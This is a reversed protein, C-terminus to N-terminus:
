GMQREVAIVGSIKEVEKMVAHLENVHAVTVDLHILAKKDKTTRVLARTINVKEESIAQTIAALMGPKDECTISLRATRTVKAKSDWQANVRREVDIGPVKTCEVRHLTVGRGRTIFGVLSDGPLPLCCKGYTMLVDDIGDVSVADKNKQSVKKFIKRIIGEKKKTEEQPKEAHGLLSFIQTLSVKGYAVSSYFSEEDAVGKKELYDKFSQEKMFHDPTVGYRRCEEHFINKGLHVSKEKQELKIFQRIKAKAKSSRAVKLWDRTPHSQASTLIEVQDGNQLISTLPVLRGNVKAGSCHDGVASHISFAFDIPTADHPLARVDGKPTFVYIEAGILDLKVTDMFEISDTLENQWNVLQRLWRFTTEAKMDIPGAEKYKWHAAIGKENIENMEFTRIQFEVREGDLCIVTTHLSQYNNAKPMALYDKFRGPVPKWLSHILGLAEYCEEVSTTLIRFAYIDYIQELAVNHREMKQYISYLHKMRGKIEFHHLSSKFHEKVTKEVREMYNEKSSKLHDLKKELQKYINPKLFRISLDELQAKIWQIGLRNAIPSYIDLTEQAIRMQKEETMFQLTRLNNLRDALKILIVRIDQSMAVIMKRFNEAQRDQQSNFQLKSLKTVGDVLAAIDEGFLKAIEERTCETDEITDHLIGAVISPVDLHMDALISAVELPHVIYPQGSKRKQGEHKKACFAYAKKIFDVDAKPNYVQIKAIVDELKLMYM